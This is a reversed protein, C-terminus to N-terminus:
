FDPYFFVPIRDSFRIGSDIADDRDPDSPPRITGTWRKRRPRRRRVPPNDQRTRGEGRPELTPLPVVPPEMGAKALVFYLVAGVIFAVLPAAPVNALGVLPAIGVVFGVAWSIWGAMNLGSPSRGM